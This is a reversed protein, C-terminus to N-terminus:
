INGEGNRLYHDLKSCSEYVSSYLETCPIATTEFQIQDSTYCPHGFVVEYLYNPNGITEGLHTSLAEIIEKNRGKVIYTNYSAFDLFSRDMEKLTGWKDMTFLKELKPSDAIAINPESFVNNQLYNVVIVGDMTGCNMPMASFTMSDENVHIVREKNEEMTHLKLDAFVSLLQAFNNDTLKLYNYDTNEIIFKEKQVSKRRVESMAQNKNPNSGGDKVEIILNYPLYYIDQIYYHQKGDMTYELVPGPTMIDESKVELVQDFFELAKKEYSGTYSREGGDSFKYVGSIKRSNLMKQLGEVTATPRNSGMKDGMTEQMKKVWADHCSKKGCLFDYRGKKEDWETPDGCIRCKRRYTVPKSNVTHYTMRLPSFGDPLLELHTELHNPLNDKTYRKECFPCKYTRSTSM